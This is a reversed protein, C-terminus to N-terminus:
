PSKVANLAAAPKVAGVVQGNRDLIPPALFRSLAPDDLRGLLAAMVRATAVESGRDAGDDVKLAVGLGLAPLAACYVGEAGAKVYAAGAAARMFDTTFSGTGAVYFPERMSAELIRKAAAARGPALGRGTGLRAFGHALREVPIAWNPISCGDIGMVEDGLRVGFVDELTAKITRQVAHGPKVYGAPDHGAHAAFCIFGSHKGSCNNCIRSPRETVADADKARNPAQPGCELDAESRGAAALMRRATAVHKPEAKHSANALALERDGFGYADAAGSEVLPLAQAAKIASRPFVPRAVDGLALVTQGDADVVAIAARHRSEVLPGRLVDVVIPNATETSPM